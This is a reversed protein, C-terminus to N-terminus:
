KKLEMEIEFNFERGNDNETIKLDIKKTQFDGGNDDADSDAVSLKCETESGEFIVTGSLSFTGLATTKSTMSTEDPCSFSLFLEKLHNKASDTVVGSLTINIYNKSNEVQGCSTSFLLLLIFLSSLMQFRKLINM